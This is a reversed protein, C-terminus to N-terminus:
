VISTECGNREDLDGSDAYTLLLLHLFFFDLVFVFLLFFATALCQEIHIRVHFSSKANEVTRMHSIM